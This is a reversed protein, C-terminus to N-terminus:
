LIKSRIRDLFGSGIEATSVSAPTIRDIEIMVERSSRELFLAREAKRRKKLGRMKTKKGDVTAYVWRLLQDAAARYEWRNLKKLLTSDAFASPGVNFVFSALASFQNDTLPVEVLGEIVPEYARDLVKVLLKEAKEKTIPGPYKRRTIGTAATVGYGITWVGAPCRYWNARFGEARRILELGAENTDRMVHPEHQRYMRRIVKPMPKM